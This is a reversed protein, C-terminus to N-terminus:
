TQSRRRAQKSTGHRKGGKKRRTVARNNKPHDKKYQMAQCTGSCFRKDMRGALFLKGCYDCSKLRPGLEALLYLLHLLVADKMEPVHLVIRGSPHKGIGTRTVEYSVQRANLTVERGRVYADLRVRVERQIESLIALPSLHPSIDISPSINMLLQTEADGQLMAEGLGADFSFRRVEELRDLLGGSALAILDEQALAVAWAMACPKAGGYQGRQAMLRHGAKQFEMAFRVGAPLPSSAAEKM